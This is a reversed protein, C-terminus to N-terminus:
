RPSVNRFSELEMRPTGEADGINLVRGLGPVYWATGTVEYTEGDSELELEYETRYADYEGSAISITETGTCQQRETISSVYEVDEAVTTMTGHREWMVGEALYSPMYVSEDDYVTRWVVDETTETVGTIFLTNEFCVLNLETTHTVNGEVGGSEELVLTFSLNDDSTSTLNSIYQKWSTPADLEATQTYVWEADRDITIMANICPLAGDSQTPAGSIVHFEYTEEGYRIVLTNEGYPFQYIFSAIDSNWQGIMTTLGDPGHVAMDCDESRNGLFEISVITGEAVIFRNGPAPYEGNIRLEFPIISETPFVTKDNGSILEQDDIVPTGSEPTNDPIDSTKDVCAVPLFLM